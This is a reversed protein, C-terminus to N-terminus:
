KDLLSVDYIRRLSNPINIKTISHDCWRFSAEGIEVLGECLEVKALKTQGGFAGAPISTVSPDVRVREVDQPVADGGPGTYIFVEANTANNDEESLLSLVERVTHTTANNPYVSGNNSPDRVWDLTHIAANSVGSNDYDDEM